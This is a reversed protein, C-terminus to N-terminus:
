SPRLLGDLLGVAWGAWWLRSRDRGPRVHPGSGSALSTLWEDRWTPWDVRWPESHDDWSSFDEARGERYTQECHPWFVRAVDTELSMTRTPDAPNWIRTVSGDTQEFCLLPFRNQLWDPSIQM